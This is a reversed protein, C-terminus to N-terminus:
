SFVKVLQNNQDIIVWLLVIFLSGFKLIYPFNMEANFIFFSVLIKKLNLVPSVVNQKDSKDRSRGLRTCLWNACNIINSSYYCLFLTIKISFFFSSHNHSM